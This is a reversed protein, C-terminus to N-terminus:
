GKWVEYDMSGKVLLKPQGRTKSFVESEIISASIIYEETIKNGWVIQIFQVVSSFHVSDIFLFPLPTNNPVSVLLIM